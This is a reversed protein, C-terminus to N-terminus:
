DHSVEREVEVPEPKRRRFRTRATFDLAVLVVMGGLVAPIMLKYFLEVYYM